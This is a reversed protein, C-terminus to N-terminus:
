RKSEVMLRQPQADRLRPTRAGYYSGYGISQEVGTVVIGALKIDNTTLLERARSLAVTRNKNLRVVLVLTDVLPAVECPDTVALLPPTDVIVFDYSGKASALLQAFLPSTLLESPNSPSMGSTLISLGDVESTQIATELEVEGALVDSLGVFQPLGFLTQMRPCRLDADILLVRKGAQAMSVALSACLSTKGDHPEPSTIQLVKEGRAQMSVFVATRVSRYAEASATDPNHFYYVRPDILSGPMLQASKFDIEPIRGMIPAALAQQAEEVTRIRTDLFAQLYLLGLLLGVIGGAVTGVIKVERKRDLGERPPAVVQLTYGSNEKGINLVNLQNAISDHMKRDRQLAENLSQEEVQYRAMEKALQTEADYRKLLEKDRHELEALEQKLAASYTAVMDLNATPLGNGVAIGSSLDPLTVGMKRYFERTTHLKERVAKVEPFDDAYEKLLRQEEILLPLIHQEMTTQVSIGGVGAGGAAAAGATSREDITLRRVMLELTAQSEGQKRASELAALKTGIETQKIMLLRRESDLHQVREQHINSIDGVQGDKGPANKWQLPATRRFELLEREKTHIQGVLDQNARTILSVMQAIHEQQSRALYSQYASIVARVVATADQKVRSHFTIELMNTHSRDTGSTRRVKLSDLIEETANEGAFSELTNLKYKRVADSIILESMILGIHETREGITEDRADKLAATRKTVLVTGVAEYSPGLKMYLLQGAAVGVIVALVIKWKHTMLLQPIDPGNSEAPAVPPAM